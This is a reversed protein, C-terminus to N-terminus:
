YVHICYMTRYSHLDTVIYGAAKCSFSIICCNVYITGTPLKGFKVVFQLQFIFSVFKIMNEEFFHIVRGSIPSGYCLCEM